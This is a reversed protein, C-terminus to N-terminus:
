RGLRRRVARAVRASQGAVQRASVRTFDYGLDAAILGKDRDSEFRERGDPAGDHFAYGDLELISPPDEWRFDFETGHHVRNVIPLPIDHDLCILLFMAEVDSRTCAGLRDFLHLAEAFHPCAQLRDREVNLLHREAQELARYRAYRPLDRATDLLTRTPTTIRLGQVVEVDAPPLTLPRHIVLLDRRERGGRGPVSVHVPQERQPPPRLLQGVLATAASLASSPGAALLAAHGKRFFDLPADGIVYVGQHRRALVDLRVLKEISKHDFGLAALDRTTILWPDVGRM